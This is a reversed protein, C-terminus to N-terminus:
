APFSTKGIRLTPQWLVQLNEVAEGAILAQTMSAIQEGVQERTAQEIATVNLDTLSDQPLGDYMVLAIPHPGSLRGAQQLAAVAGDGHVNGDMVIATPPEPLALLDLMAQYGARRTPDVGRLYDDHFPLNHRQLADRYGQRRQMIFAQPHDESLMAIRRHGLTILHETALSMGARNDFDFWAYPHSLQSRGLALFPVKHHQLLMLRADQECTHAVILADIRHSTILRVAGQCADQEDALLLFDVDHQALKSSIAGIMEFFIDNSLSSAYPYVLGIADSKGMKLRRAHTNPRYGIREAEEQIRQRTAESIDRHGNLARSVATVSLGLNNAITKLSM